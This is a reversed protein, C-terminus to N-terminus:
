PTNQKSDTPAAGPAPKANFHKSLYVGQGITFALMLGLSGFLKFNVWTSQSFNFAVYLNLVGMLGFFVVWAMSLKQWVHGPLDLQEGMLSKLLNKKFVWQSVLFSL